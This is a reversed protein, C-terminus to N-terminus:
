TLQDKHLFRASIPKDQTDAEALMQTVMWGRRLRQEERSRDGRQGRRQILGRNEPDTGQGM